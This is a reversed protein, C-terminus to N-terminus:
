SYFKLREQEPGRVYERVTLIENTVNVNMGRVVQRESLEVLLRDSNSLRIEGSKIKELFNEDSVSATIINDPGLRFSWNNREGEVSIRKPQLWVTRKNEVVPEQECSPLASQSYARIPAVIDHTLVTKTQDEESKIYSEVSGVQPIELPKAVGNYFHQQITCNQYLAHVEKPVTMSVGEESSYRVDGSQLPEVTKTKGKMRKITEILSPANIGSVQSVFGLYTLVQGINKGTDSNIFALSQEAMENAFMMINIEFSGKKFPKVNVAIEQDYPYLTKHAENILKGVSLLIPSLEFVNIGDEIDGNLKYILDLGKTTM